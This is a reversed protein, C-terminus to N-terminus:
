REKCVVALRLASSLGKDEEISQRRRTNRNLVVHLLSFDYRAGRTSRCSIREEEVWPDDRLETSYTRKSEREELDINYGSASRVFSRARCDVRTWFSDNSTRKVSWFM